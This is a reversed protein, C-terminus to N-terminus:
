GRFGTKLLPVSGPTLIRAIRLVAESSYHVAIDSRRGLTSFVAVALNRAPFYGITGNYGVLRPNCLIWGKSVIAGM